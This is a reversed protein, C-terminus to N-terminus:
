PQAGGAGPEVVASASAQVQLRLPVPGLPQITAAVTVMVAPGAASVTTRAGDPAARGALETVVGAPEGRAAARAGERAADLCRLQGGVVVLAAVAAALVFLLVPLVVATEATVM